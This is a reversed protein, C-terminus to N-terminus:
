SCCSESFHGSVFSSHTWTSVAVLEIAKVNSEGTADYAHPFTGRVPPLHTLMVPIFKATTSGVAVTLMLLTSHLQEDHTDPVVSRHLVAAAGEM